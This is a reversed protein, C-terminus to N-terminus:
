DMGSGRKGLLRPYENIDVEQIDDWYRFNVMVGNCAGWDSFAFSVYIGSHDEYPIVISLDGICKEIPYDMPFVPNSVSRQKSVFRKIAQEFEARHDVIFQIRSFQSESVTDQKRPTPLNFMTNHNKAIGPSVWQLSEADREGKEVKLKVLAYMDYQLDGFMPEDVMQAYGFLTRSIPFLRM